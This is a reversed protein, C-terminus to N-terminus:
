NLVLITKHNAELKPVKSSANRGSVAPRRRFILLATALIGAGFLGYDATIQLSVAAGMGVISWLLPVIVLAKPFHADCLLFLGFTFITTPCPAIGFIPQQPWTHGSLHNVVPYVVAAYLIFFAGAMTRLHWRSNFILKKKLAGQWFIFLGQAIFIVGFTYASKNISSFFGMHYIAGNWIWMWALISAIFRNSWTWRKLTLLLAVTGLLYAIVQMPWVATNYSGFVSLFQETTFPIHM